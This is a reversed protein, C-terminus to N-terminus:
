RSIFNRLSIGLDFVLRDVGFRNLALHRRIGICALLHPDLGQDLDLCVRL